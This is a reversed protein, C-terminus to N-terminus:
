ERRGKEREIERDREREKEKWHNAIQSENKRGM